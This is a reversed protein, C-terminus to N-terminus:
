LIFQGAFVDRIFPGLHIGMGMRPFGMHGMFGGHIIIPPNNGNQFLQAMVLFLIVTGIWVFPSPRGHMPLQGFLPHRRHHNWHGRFFPFRVGQRIGAM